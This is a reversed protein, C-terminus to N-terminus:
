IWSKLGRYFQGSREMMLDHEEDAIAKGVLYFIIPFSIPFTTLVGLEFIRDFGQAEAEKTKEWDYKLASALGDKKINNIGQRISYKEM